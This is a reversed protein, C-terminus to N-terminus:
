EGFIHPALKAQPIPPTLPPSMPYFSEKRHNAVINSGCYSSSLDSRKSDTEELSELSKQANRIKMSPPSISSTMLRSSPGEDSGIGSDRPSDTDIKRGADKGPYEYATNDHSPNIDRTRYKPTDRGKRAILETQDANPPPTLYSQKDLEVSGWSPPKSRNTSCRSDYTDVWEREGYPSRSHVDTNPLPVNTPTTRWHTANDNSYTNGRRHERSPRHISVPTHNTVHFAPNQQAHVATNWRKTEITVDNAVPRFHRPNSNRVMGTSNSRVEHQMLNPIRGRKETLKDRVSKPNIPPKSNQTSGNSSRPSPRYNDNLDSNVPHSNEPNPKRKSSPMGFVRAVEEDTGSSSSSRRPEASVKLKPAPKNNFKANDAAINPRFFSWTGSDGFANEDCNLPETPLNEDDSFNDDM